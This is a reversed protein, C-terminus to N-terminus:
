LRNHQAQAVGISHKFLFEYFHKSVVFTIDSTMKKTSINTHLSANWNSSSFFFFFFFRRCCHFFFYLYKNVWKKTKIEQRKHRRVYNCLEKKPSTIQRITKDNKKKNIKKFLCTYPFPFTTGMWLHLKSIQQYKPSAYIPLLKSNKFFVITLTPWHIKLIKKTNKKRKLIWM